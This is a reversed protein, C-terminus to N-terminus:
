FSVLITRISNAPIRATVKCGEPRCEGDAAGRELVDTMAASKIQRDFTLVAEADKGDAEYLRVIVGDGDEARKVASVLVGDGELSLMSHAMPLSGGHFGNSVVTMPQCVAQAARILGAKDKAAGAPLFGVAFEMESPGNEPYPDPDFSARLLTLAISSDDCRWGYRDKSVIMVGSGSGEDAAASFSNAPMDQTRGQRTIVGFPIDQLYSGTFRNSLPMYFSLQPTGKEESGKERFDCVVHYKVFRSGKDLSIRVKLTSAADKATNATGCAADGGFATEYLVSQRLPGDDRSMEAPNDNIIQVSKYRGVLWSSMESTWFSIEKRNAEIIYRFVGSRRDPDAYEEGTEKDTASLISGDLPDIVVRLLENELAFQEPTQDRKEPYFIGKVSRDAERIVCTAYGCAPVTVRVLIKTYYHWWYYNYGKEIIQFELPEGNEDEVCMREFDAYWEWVLMEVSETRETPLPNFVHMVRTTGQGREVQGSGVGAGYAVSLYLKEGDMEGESLIGSTDIDAAVQQLVMKENNETVALAEQYLGMAYERTDRVGSGTVIDHFQNFIVAEWADRFTPCQKKMLAAAGKGALADWAEAAYLKREMERNGAKVRSQSTYCGDFIFNIEGEHVPLSDKEKEVTEFFQRYTGLVFNPFVPWSDMDLLREIDKITPGGGHDGVGYVRLSTGIGSDASVELAQLAMDGGVKTFYFDRERNVLLEKGSASRWRYLQPVNKSGRCHYYYKIGAQTLLEPEMANHGFTDPAFDVCIEDMDIELLDALYRKAYLLQRVQSEGSPMNKDHEVWTPATVEWRGEHVLKKVEELLDPRYDALIKYVSAQSQSFHFSPYHKMIHLITQVTDVTVGVTEQFGWQWNMDIHAHGACIITYEKAAAQVPSLMEEARAVIDPTVIGDHEKAAEDVFAETERIVEDFVGGRLQSLRAAYALEFDIRDIYYDKKSSRKLAATRELM